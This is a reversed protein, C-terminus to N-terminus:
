TAAGDSVAKAALLRPPLREEEEPSLPVNTPDFALKLDSVEDNPIAEILDIKKRIRKM